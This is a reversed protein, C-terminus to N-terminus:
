RSFQRPMIMRSKSPVSGDVTRWCIASFAFPQQVTNQCSRVFSSYLSCNGCRFGDSPLAHWDTRRRFLQCEAKGFGVNSKPLPFTFLLYLKRHFLPLGYSFSVLIKSTGRRALCHMLAISWQSTIITTAPPNQAKGMATCIVLTGVSVM